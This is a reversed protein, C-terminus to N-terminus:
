HATYALIVLFSTKLNSRFSDFSRTPDRLYDPLSVVLRVYGSCHGLVWNIAATACLSYMFTPFLRWIRLVCSTKFASLARHPTRGICPQRTGAISLCCNSPNLWCVAHAPHLYRGAHQGALSLGDDIALLCPRRQRRILLFYECPM